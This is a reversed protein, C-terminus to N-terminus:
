MTDLYHPLQAFLKTLEYKLNGIQFEAQVVGSKNLSKSEILDRAAEILGVKENIDEIAKHFAKNWSNRKDM